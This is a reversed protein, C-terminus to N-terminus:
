GPRGLVHRLGGEIEPHDFRFGAGSLVDPAVRQSVFLLSDAMERGVVLRPGAAPVPVLSPRGLVRGLVRTLEANTVPRPATLNVPGRLQATDILFRLARVEDDLTIWSM